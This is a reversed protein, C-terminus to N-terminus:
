DAADGDVMTVELDNDKIGRFVENLITDLGDGEETEVTVWETKPLTKGTFRSEFTEGTTRALYWKRRM